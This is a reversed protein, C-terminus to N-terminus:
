KIDKACAIYAQRLNEPADYRLHSDISDASLMAWGECGDAGCACPLAVLIQAGDRILGLNAFEDSLRSRRAYDRVFEARTVM